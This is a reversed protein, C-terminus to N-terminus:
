GELFQRSTSEDLSTSERITFTISTSIVLNATSIMKRVSSCGLVIFMKCFCKLFISNSFKSEVEIGNSMGDLGDSNELDSLSVANNTTGSLTVSYLLM